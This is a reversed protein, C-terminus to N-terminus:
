AAPEDLRPFLAEGRNTATGPELGGWSGADPLRQAELPEAVGLQAWLRGAAEPMAPAALLAMVRLGELAQYLADALDQRRDPDKALNWPAVEVLYRNAERVFEALAAFADTLELACM